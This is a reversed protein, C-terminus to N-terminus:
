LRRRRLSGRRRGSAAVTGAAAATALLPQVNIYATGLFLWAQITNLAVIVFGGEAADVLIIAGSGLALSTETALFLGRRLQKARGAGPPIGAFAGPAFQIYAAYLSGYPLILAAVLLVLLVGVGIWISVEARRRLDLDHVYQVAAVYLAIGYVVHAIAFALPWGRAAGGLYTGLFAGYIAVGGLLWLWWWRRISQGYARLSNDTDM